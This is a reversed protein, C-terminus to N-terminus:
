RKLHFHRVRLMYIVFCSLTQTDALLIKGKNLNHGGSYSENCHKASACAM